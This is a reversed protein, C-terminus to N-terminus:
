AKGTGETGSALNPAGAARAGSSYVGIGDCTESQFAVTPERTQGGGLSGAEPHCPGKEERCGWRLCPAPMLLVRISPRLPEVPVGPGSPRPLSKLSIVSDSCGLGPNTQSLFLYPALRQPECVRLKRRWWKWLVAAPLAYQAPASYGGGGVPAMVETPADKQAHATM